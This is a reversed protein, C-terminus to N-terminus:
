LGVFVLVCAVVEGCGLSRCARVRQRFLHRIGVALKSAIGQCDATFPLLSCPISTYRFNRPLTSSPRETYVKTKYQNAISLAESVPAVPGLFHGHVVHQRKNIWLYEKKCVSHEEIRYGFIIDLFYLWPKDGVISNSLFTHICSAM